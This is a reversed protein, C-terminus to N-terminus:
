ARALPAGSTQVAREERRAAVLEEELAALVVDTIVQQTLRCFMTETVDFRGREGLKNAPAGGLCFDFYKCSARCRENGRIVEDRQARYGASDALPPVPDTRVNGLSLSGLRPDTMGLLEPSFTGCTGDWAVSLIRGPENQSNATLTGFAPDRLAQIVQDVERVRFPSPSSRLRAVIRTMFERFEAEIAHQDGAALSSGRNAGEVEEVNFCLCSPALEAFFDFIEDAHALSERSLVCIVHFPIRAQRLAQVGRMVLAHTGQGRRTRRHRDHLWAPGDISVGVHVDHATILDCWRADLLVGNTQFHHKLRVPSPCLRALLQFADAYWDRTVTLPEGAHWIVSLQSSALDAQFVRSAAAELTARSMRRTEDRHPLYCYDCNLNCFPTPQLVFLELRGRWNENVTERERRHM